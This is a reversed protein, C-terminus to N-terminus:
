DSLPAAPTPLTRLREEDPRQTYAGVGAAVMAAGVIGAENRLQAAVVPPRVTFKGIFRDADKSAGGGIIILDPWVLMDLRHLFEDVEDAWKEWSMRRRIRAAGSARDEADKGRIQIHGLETNPLLRGNLFLASGVGTGLTVVLVTGQRGRGAGFRMEALGAADADNVVATRRGLRQSIGDGADYGLWDDDINTATLVIGDIAVAPIGVGVPAGDPIPTEATAQEVIQAMVAICRDPTSPQPTRIRLRESRLQGTEVDVVAGKIGTGGFDIGVALRGSPAPQDEAVPEDTM